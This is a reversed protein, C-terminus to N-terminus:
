MVELLSNWRRMFIQRDHWNEEGTPRTANELHTLQGTDIMGIRGGSRRLKLCLDVDQCEALYVEDFGGVREFDATKLMLYAGTVAGVDWTRGVEHKWISRAYPHYCFGFLEPSDFFGVGAHQITGDAFELVSSVAAHEGITLHEYALKVSHPNAEILVDNNLFLVTDYAVHNVLANNCRSFNYKLHRFVRTQRPPNNLLWLTRPDTSGTDGLLLEVYVHADMFEEAVRQFGTWLSEILDHRNLNLVVISLGPRRTRFGKFEPISGNKVVNSREFNSTGAYPHFRPDLSEFRAM